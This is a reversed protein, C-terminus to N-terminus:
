KSATNDISYYVMANYISTVEEDTITYRGSDDPAVHVTVTTPERYTLNDEHDTLIQILPSLYERTFEEDTYDQFEYNNNRARFEQNFQLFEPYVENYIDLPEIDIAVNGDPDSEKVTYRVQSYISKIADTLASDLDDPIVDDDTLGSFRLFIDAEHRIFDNYDPEIAEVSSNTAQAYDKFEGKYTADLMGKIYGSRDFTDMCGTLCLCLSAIILFIGMCKKMYKM